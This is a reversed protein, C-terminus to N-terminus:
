TYNGHKKGGVAKGDYLYAPFGTGARLSRAIPTGHPWPRRSTPTHAPIPQPVPVHWRPM